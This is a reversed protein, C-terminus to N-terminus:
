NGVYTNLCNSYANSIDIKHVEFMVKRVLLTLNTLALEKQTGPNILDINDLEKNREMENTITTWSYYASSLPGAFPYHCRSIDDELIEKITAEQNESLSITDAIKLFISAIGLFRSNVHDQLVKISDKSVSHVNSWSDELRLKKLATTSSFYAKQIMTVTRVQEWTQLLNRPPINNLKRTYPRYSRIKHYGKVSSVYGQIYSSKIYHINMRNLILRKASHM